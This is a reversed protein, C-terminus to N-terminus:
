SSVARGFMDRFQRYQKVNGDFPIIEIKSPELHRSNMQNAALRAVEKQNEALMYLLQTINPSSQQEQEEDLLQNWSPSAQQTQRAPPATTSLLPASMGSATTTTTVMTNSAVTTTLTPILISISTTVSAPNPSLPKTQPLEYLQTTM